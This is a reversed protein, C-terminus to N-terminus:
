SEISSLDTRGYKMNRLEQEDYLIDALRGSAYRLKKLKWLMGQISLNDMGKVIKRLMYDESENAM